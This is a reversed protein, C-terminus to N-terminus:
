MLLKIRQKKHTCRECICANKKKKIIRRGGLDVSDSTPLTLHTYSVARVVYQAPAIISEVLFGPNMISSRSPNRGLTPMM